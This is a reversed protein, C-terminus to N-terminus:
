DSVRHADRMDRIQDHNKQTGHAQREVVTKAHLPLDQKLAKRYQALAVDEARECEQLMNIDSYGSLTGKVAVWGRHIAGGATGGEDPEGGMNIILEQLESAASRCDGARQLFVSKIAQTKTHEASETFGFEGDRCIELLNNLTDIADGNIDEADRDGMFIHSPSELASTSTMGTLSPSPRLGGYTSSLNSDNAMTIAKPLFVITM